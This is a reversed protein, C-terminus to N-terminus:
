SAWAQPEQGFLDAQGPLQAPPPSTKRQPEPLVDPFLTEAATAVVERAKRGKVLTQDFQVPRMQTWDSM